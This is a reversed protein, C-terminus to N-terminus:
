QLVQREPTWIYKAVLKGDVGSLYKYRAAGNLSTAVVILGV